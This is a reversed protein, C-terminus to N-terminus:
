ATLCGPACLSWAHLLPKKQPKRQPTWRSVGNKKFTKSTSKEFSTHAHTLLKQSHEASRRSLARAAMKVPLGLRPATAVVSFKWQYVIQRVMSKSTKLAVIVTVRELKMYTSLMYAKQPSKPSLCPECLAEESCCVWSYGVGGIEVRQNSGLTAPKQSWDTRPSTRQHECVKEVM